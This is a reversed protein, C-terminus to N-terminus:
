APLDVRDHCRDVDAADHTALLVALRPRRDVAEWFRQVATEDLSHTAEDLVLLAPDGLLAQALGLQQLMGASCEDVRRRAMASIELEQEIAEVSALAARKSSHRLRACFLLNAHGSLRLYFAKGQFLSVGLSRCADITGPEHGQISVSGRSPTLAGTICRLVTTKGSGNPGWLAVREGPGIVLDLSRLVQLSGFRRALREIALVPEEMEHASYGHGRQRQRHGRRRRLAQSPARGHAARSQMFRWRSEVTPYPRLDYVQSIHRAFLGPRETRGYQSEFDFHSRALVGM